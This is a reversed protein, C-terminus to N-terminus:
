QECSAGGFWEDCYGGGCDQYDTHCYYFWDNPPDATWCKPIALTNEDSCYPDGCESDTGCSCTAENDGEYCTSTPWSCDTYYYTWSCSYSNWGKEVMQDNKACWVDPPDVPPPCSYSYSATVPSVDLSYLLALTGLFVLALTSAVYIKKM